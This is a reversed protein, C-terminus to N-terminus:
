RSSGALYEAWPRAQGHALIQGQARLREQLLPVPCEVANCNFELCTSAAVGAAQGLIMWVPEMRITGLGVHTASVCVPSLLNRVWTPVLIRYPIQYPRAPLIFFGERWPYGSRVPGTAHSDLPYSGMGVSETKLTDTTADRQTFIEVGHLRRAERVYIQFPWNGTASFEDAALGFRGFQQRLMEPVRPDTLLFKWLGLIHERHAKDIKDREQRTGQPYGQAGGVLDTSLWCYGWNNLDYKRNPLPSFIMLDTASVENRSRIYDLLLKYNEPEYNEPEPWSAMNDASDTLCLRYNYAQVMSDAEQTSGPLPSRTQVNQFIHGAMSEGYDERSERGVTFPCGAEAFLDGTYTGDIFFRGEVQRQEGSSDQRLAVSHIKNLSLELDTLNWGRLLEVKEEALLKEFVAEAVHPEFKLGLKCLEWQPSNEGYTERYFTAIGAFVEASIGGIFDPDGADSSGLGSAMMGGVQENVAILCVREGMRAAALSAAIGGPTAGYVVVDYQRPGTGRLACSSLAVLVMLMITILFRL